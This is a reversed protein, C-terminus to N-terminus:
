AAEDKSLKTWTTSPNSQNTWETTVTQDTWTDAQVTQESWKLGGIASFSSSQAIASSGRDIQHGVATLGSVEASIAAGSVTFRGTATM